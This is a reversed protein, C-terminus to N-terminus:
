DGPTLLSVPTLHKCGAATRTVNHLYSKGIGKTICVICYSLPETSKELVRRRPAWDSKKQEIEIWGYVRSGNEFIEAYAFVKM